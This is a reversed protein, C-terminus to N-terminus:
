KEAVKNAEKKPASPASSASGAPQWALTKVLENEVLQDSPSVVITDDAHLGEIIEVDRGLDRGLKIQRFQIRNKEDVVAVRQTHDTIILAAAPAVLAKVGSTLEISIEAYAGPLLKAGPNPLILDVQRARTTPDIGGAIRDITAKLKAGHQENLNLQVQTGIKLEDAYAQPIWITLRLQDTQAIAFLEKGGTAIFDGVEINRRTIIGSFPAVISRFGELQELRKVNASAAALDAQGQRVLSRKEALDQQSIANERQRLLEWRTLTQQALDLRAAIQEKQARVQALEQEQEPADITALLEGKKVRDGIGKHWASVYGSARAYIVSETNGRLTTPLSLTRQLEGPKTKTILVTRELTKATYEQLANAERVNLLVRTSAGALLVIFAILLIRKTYVFTKTDNTTILDVKPLHLDNM